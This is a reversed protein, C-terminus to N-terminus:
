NVSLNVRRAILILYHGFFLSDKGRIGENKKAASSYMELKGDKGDRDVVRKWVKLKTNFWMLGCCTFCAYLVNGVVCVFKVKCSLMETADNNIGERPSYTSVRGDRGVRYVKKKMSVSFESEFKVNEEDEFDWTQTEPDFVELQSDEDSGGIVYIKGEVVGVAVKYEASRGVKM